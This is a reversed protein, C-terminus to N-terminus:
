KNEGQLYEVLHGKLPRKNRVSQYITTNHVKLEKALEKGSSFVRGNWSVKKRNNCLGSEWARKSNESQTVYELNSIDNNSKNGDIHDVTLLSKGFFTEAVLRHVRLKKKNEKIFFYGCDDTLFNVKRCKKNFERWIEGNDFVILNGVKKTRM